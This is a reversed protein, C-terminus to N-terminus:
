HAASPSAILGSSLAIWGSTWANLSSSEMTLLKATLANTLIPFAATGARISTTFRLGSPEDGSVTDFPGSMDAYIKGNGFGAQTTVAQNVMQLAAIFAPAHGRQARWTNRIMYM